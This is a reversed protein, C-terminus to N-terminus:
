EEKAVNISEVIDEDSVKSAEEEKKNPMKEM